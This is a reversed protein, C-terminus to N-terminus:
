VMTLILQRHSSFESLLIAHLIKTLICRSVSWKSYQSTIRLTLNFQCCIQKLTMTKDM